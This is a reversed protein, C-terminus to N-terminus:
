SHHRTDKWCNWDDLISYGIINNGDVPINSTEESSLACCIKGGKRVDHDM